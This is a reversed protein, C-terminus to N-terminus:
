FMFIVQWKVVCVKQPRQQYERIGQSYFESETDDYNMLFNQLLGLKEKQKANEKSFRTFAANEREDKQFYSSDANNCYKPSVWLELNQDNIFIYKESPYPTASEKEKYDFRLVFEGPLYERSLESTMGNKVGNIEMIPKFTRSNTLAM